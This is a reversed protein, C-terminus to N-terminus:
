SRTGDARDPLKENDDASKELAPIMVRRALNALNLPAGRREGSLKAVAESIKEIETSGKCPAPHGCDFGCRGLECWIRKGVYSGFERFPRCDWKRRWM